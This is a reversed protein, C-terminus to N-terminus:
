IQHYKLQVQNIKDIQKVQKKFNLIRLFKNSMKHLTIKKDKITINHIKM